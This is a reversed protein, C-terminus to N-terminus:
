RFTIQSLLDESLAKFLQASETKTVALREVLQNCMEIPKNIKGLEIQSVYQKSTGIKDAFEQLTMGRDERIKRIVKPAKLEYNAM